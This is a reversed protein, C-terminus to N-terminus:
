FFKERFPVPAPSAFSEKVCSANGAQVAIGIRQRLFEAARKNGSVSAIRRGLEALFSQTSPGLGGLTEVAVPQVVYQRALESYKSVKKEEAQAAIVAGPATAHRSYSAALRHVCTFDWVLSKGRAWPFLTLGDPRKGDSRCLGLPELTSPVEASALARHIADNGLSHRCFRSKTKKCILAHQGTPDVEAGCVCKHTSCVQAGLRLGVAISFQENSLRLGLTGSPLANLWDGAGPARCGELRSITQSDTALYLRELFRDHIPASWSAQKCLNNQPSQIHSIQSWVECANSTLEDSPLNDVGLLAGVLSRTSHVSALFAAPAVAEPSPIGLGGLRCPLTAQCWGTDTLTVNCVEELAARWCVDLEKLSDPENFTPATRLLYLLKPMLLCNKLLFYADHRHLFKLRQCLRVSSSLKEQMSSRLANSGISSGLVTLDEPDTTSITPCVSRFAQIISEKPVDERIISLESKSGNLYLGISECDTVFSSLDQLVVRWHDAVSVDDIYACLFRSNIRSLKEQIGLCFGFVALPDGQQFGEASDLTFESGFLLLSNEKYCLNFFPLLEPVQRAFCEAVHDRRITNFANKFDLKLFVDGNRPNNILRRTAHAAAECGGPIGFGLQSPAFITTFRASVSQTACKAALRRLTDGVAIPRVGGDTKNFATLSAGVFIPVIPAPVSGALILNVINTLEVLLRPGADGVRRSLGDKLHQPRLGSVGGASGPSFSNIAANVAPPSVRLPSCEDLLPFERRDSPQPPHKARLKALTSSDFPAITDASCTIRVAGRIDGEDLKESVIVSLKVDAHEEEQKKNLSKRPGGVRGSTTILSTPDEAALFLSCQRKIITALSVRRKTGGRDPRRLCVSPLLLLRMWAIPDSPHSTVGRITDTLISAFQLRAGRPVFKLIRSKPTRLTGLIDTTSLSSADTSSENPETSSGAAESPINTLSFSAAVAPATSGSGPCVDGNKYHRRLHNNSNISFPRRCSNCLARNPGLDSQPTQPAIESM